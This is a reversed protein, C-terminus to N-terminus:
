RTSTPASPSAVPPRAACAASPSRRWRLRSSALAPPPSPPRALSRAGVRLESVPEYLRDLYALLAGPDEPQPRFGVHEDPRVLYLCGAWAGYRRHCVGGPDVMVSGHDGVIEQMEEGPFVVHVAM